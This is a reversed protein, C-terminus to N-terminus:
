TQAGFIPQLTSAKGRRTKLSRVFSYSDPRYLVHPLLGRSWYFLILFHVWVFIGFQNEKMLMNYLTFPKVTKNGYLIYHVKIMNMEETVRNIWGRKGVVERVTTRESEHRGRVERGGGWIGCILPLKHSKDKCFQSIGSLKIIEVEMWKGAFSM